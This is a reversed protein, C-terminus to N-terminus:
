PLDYERSWPGPGTRGVPAYRYVVTGVVSATPVPGFTRSDTSARPADGLIEVTRAARDVGAVRKVLIRSRERPDRVAVVAGVAPLSPAGIPRRMVVLRDGPLFTPAMSHGHVEVRRVSRRSLIAAVCALVVALVPAAGRSRTRRGPTHPVTSPLTIAAPGMGGSHVLPSPALQAGVSVWGLV